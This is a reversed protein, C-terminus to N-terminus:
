CVDEELENLNIDLIYSFRHLKIEEDTYRERIAKIEGKREMEMIEAYTEDSFSLKTSIHKHAYPETYQGLAIQKSISNLAHKFNFDNGKKKQQMVIDTIIWEKLEDKDSIKAKVDCYSIVTEIYKDQIM